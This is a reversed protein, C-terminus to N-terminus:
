KDLRLKRLRKVTTELAKVAAETAQATETDDKAKAALKMARKTLYEAILHRHSWIFAEYPQAANCPCGYVVTKGNLVGYRVTGNFAVYEDPKAIHNKELEALEGEEMYEGNQDYVTRKCFECDQAPTGGGIVCDWFMESPEIKSLIKPPLKKPM